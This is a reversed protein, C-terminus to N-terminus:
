PRSHPPASLILLHMGLISKGIMLGRQYSLYLFHPIFCPVEWSSNIQSTQKASFM